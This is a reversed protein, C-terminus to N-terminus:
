SLRRVPAARPHLERFDGCAGCPRESSRAAPTPMRLISGQEASQFRIFKFLREIKPM